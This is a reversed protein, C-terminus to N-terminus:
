RRASARERFSLPSQGTWRRFSRAFSNPDTYALLSAIESVRLNSKTLYRTALEERTQDLIRQFSTGEASLARQMGSRSIGMELCVDSVGSRGALFLELLCSQVQAAVTSNARQAAVQMELDREFDTWLRSNESVFRRRSDEETFAVSCFSGIEPMVGLHGAVERREVAPSPLTAAAAEVHHATALRTAEVTFVLHLSGLTAPVDLESDVCHYEVWFLEGERYTRVQTPGLLTKFRALRKFGIELNPACTLSFFAPIVPGRAITVGLHTLYDPRQNIKVMTDWAHFYEAPTVLVDGNRKKAHELGAERLMDDPDIGLIRCCVETGM